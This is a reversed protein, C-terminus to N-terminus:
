TTTLWRGTINLVLRAPVVLTEWPKVTGDPYTPVVNLYVKDGHTVAKTLIRYDISKREFTEGALLFRAETQCDPAIWERNTSM